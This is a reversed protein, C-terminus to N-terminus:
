GPLPPGLTLLGAPVADSRRAADRVCEESGDNLVDVLEREAVRSPSKLTVSTVADVLLKGQEDRTRCTGCTFSFMSASLSCSWNKPHSLQPLAGCLSRLPAGRGAPRASPCQGYTGHATRATLREDIDRM